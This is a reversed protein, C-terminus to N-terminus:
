KILQKTKETISNAFLEYLVIHGSELTEDIKSDNILLPSNIFLHISSLDFLVKKTGNIQDVCNCKIVGYKINPEYINEFSFSYNYPVNKGFPKNIYVNFYDAPTSNEPLDFINIVRQDIRTIGSLQLSEVSSIVKIIDVKFNEWNEYNGIQHISINDSQIQVAKDKSNNFVRYGTTNIQEQLNNNLNFNFHISPIPIIEKYIFTNLLADKIKDILVSDIQNHFTFQCISETIKNNNYFERNNIAM